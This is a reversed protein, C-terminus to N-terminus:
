ESIDKTSSYLSPVLTSTAPYGPAGCFMTSIALAPVKFCSLTSIFSTKVKLLLLISMNEVSFVSTPARPAEPPPTNASPFSIPIM